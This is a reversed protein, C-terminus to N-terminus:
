ENKIDKLVLLTKTVEQHTNCKSGRDLHFIMRVRVHSDLSPTKKKEKRKKKLTFELVQEELNM